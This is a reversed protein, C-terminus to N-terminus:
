QQTTTYSLAGVVGADDDDKNNDVLFLCLIQNNRVYLPPLKEAVKDRRM